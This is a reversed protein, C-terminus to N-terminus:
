SSNSRQISSPLQFFVARTSIVKYLYEDCIDCGMNWNFDHSIKGLSAYKPSRETKILHGMLIGALLVEENTNYWISLDCRQLSFDDWQELWPHLVFGFQYALSKHDIETLMEAEVFLTM